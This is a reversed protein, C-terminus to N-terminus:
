TRIAVTPGIKGSGALHILRPVLERTLVVGRPILQAAAAAKVPEALEMGPELQSILVRRSAPAGLAAPLARTNDETVLQPPPPVTGDLIDQDIGLIQHLPLAPPTAAGGTGRREPGKLPASVRRREPGTYAGSSVFPAPSRLVGAIKAALNAASVPKVVIGNCGADRAAAVAAATPEALTIIVPIDRSPSDSAMRLSRCLRTAGQPQINAEGIMLGPGATGLQQYAHIINTVRRVDRFGLARIMEVIIKAMHPVNEIVLVRTQLEQPAFTLM